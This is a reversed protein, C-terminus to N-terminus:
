NKIIKYSKLIISLYLIQILCWLVARTLNFLLARRCSVVNYEKAQASLIILLRKKQIKCM